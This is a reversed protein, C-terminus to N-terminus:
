GGNEMLSSGFSCHSHCMQEMTKMKGEGLLFGITGITKKGGTDNNANGCVDVPVDLAYEVLLWPWNVVTINEIKAM